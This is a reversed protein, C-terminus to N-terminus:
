SGFLSGGGAGVISAVAAQQAEDMSQSGPQGGGTAELGDSAGDGAPTIQAALKDGRLARHALAILRPNMHKPDVGQNALEQAAATAVERDRLEPFQAEIKEASQAEIMDSIQGQVPGLAQELRQQVLGDVYQNFGDQDLEVPQEGFEGQEQGGFFDFDPLEAGEAEGQAPVLQETLGEFMDRFEGQMQDMRDTLPSFDQTAAETTAAETGETAGGAEAVATEESM